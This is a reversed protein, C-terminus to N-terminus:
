GFVAFYILGVIGIGFIFSYAQLNGVQFLRLLAGFGRTAGSAGGVAGVDIIWRDFFASIKALLEQTAGILRAYLEDFYFRRRFIALDIPDHERNRYLLFAVIVGLLMAGTALMPVPGAHDAHPVHLFRNAFFGFGALAAPVALVLLPGTM